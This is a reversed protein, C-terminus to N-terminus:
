CVQQSSVLGSSSGVGRWPSQILSPDTAWTEQPVNEMTGGGWHQSSPEVWAPLGPDKPGVQTWARHYVPPHEAPQTWSLVGPMERWWHASPKGQGCVTERWQRLVCCCTSLLCLCTRLLCLCVHELGNMGNGVCQGRDTWGLAGVGALAERSESTVFPPAQLAWQM